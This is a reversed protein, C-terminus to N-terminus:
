CDETAAMCSTIQIVAFAFASIAQWKVQNQTTRMENALSFIQSLFYSLYCHCYCGNIVWNQNIRSFLSLPAFFSCLPVDEAYLISWYLHWRFINMWVEDLCLYCEPSFPLSQTFIFYGSGYPVCRGVKEKMEVVITTLMTTAVLLDAMRIWCCWSSVITTLYLMVKASPGCVTRGRLHAFTRGRRKTTRFIFIDIRHEPLINSVDSPRCRWLAFTTRM